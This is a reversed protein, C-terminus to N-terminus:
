SLSKRRRPQETPEGLQEVLDISHAKVEDIAVRHLGMWAAIAAAGAGAGIVIGTAFVFLFAIM